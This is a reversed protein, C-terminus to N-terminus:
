CVNPFHLAFGCHSTMVYEPFMKILFSFVTIDLAPSSASWSSSEYVAPSFVFQHLWEPFCSSPKQTRYIGVM